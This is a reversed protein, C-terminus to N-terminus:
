LDVTHYKSHSPSNFPFLLFLSSLIFNSLSPHITDFYNCISPHNPWCIQYAAHFLYCEMNEYFQIFTFQVTSLPFVSLCVSMCLVFTCRAAWNSWGTLFYSTVNHNPSMNRISWLPCHIHKHNPGIIHPAFHIVKQCQDFATKKNGHPMAWFPSYWYRTDLHLIIPVPFPKKQRTNCGSSKIM